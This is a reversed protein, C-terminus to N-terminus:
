SWITFFKGNMSIFRWLGTILATKDDCIFLFSGTHHLFTKTTQLTIAWPGFAAEGTVMRSLLHLLFLKTISLVGSYLLLPSRYYFALALVAAIVGDSAHLFSLVSRLSSSKFFDYKKLDLFIAIVCLLYAGTYAWFYNTLYIDDVLTASHVVYPNCRHIRWLTEAATSMWAVHTASEM